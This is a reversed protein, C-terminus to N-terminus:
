VLRRRPDRFVARSEIGTALSAVVGVVRAPAIVAREAGVACAVSSLPFENTQIRRPQGLDKRRRSQGFAVRIGRWGLHGMWNASRRVALNTVPLVTLHSRIWRIVNSARVVHTQSAM